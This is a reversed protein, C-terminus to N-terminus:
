SRHVPWVMGARVLQEVPVRLGAWVDEVPADTLVAIAAVIQGVTLEGDCAGLFGAGESSLRLRQGFGGGQTAIVLQPDAQGPLYHREERVDAARVLIDAPSVEGGSALYDVVRQLYEGAASSSTDVADFCRAPHFRGRHESAPPAALVVMGMGISAVARTCFDELWALETAASTEGQGASSDQLWLRVYEAPSLQRRQVVWAAVDRGALWQQPHNAWTPIDAPQLAAPASEVEWNGMVVAHGGAALHDCVQGVVTATLADGEMNGDRYELVGGARVAPATIVFPPNSVILDFTEGAVPACLDGQRVEVPVRNLAANFRAFACARASIDTAVVRKAHTALYLALVGCGTGLDLASVVPAPPTALALTRTAGGVGLVHHPGPRVGALAGLDSAVWWHHEVGAITAAHPALHCLPQLCEGVLHALGLAMLGGVQTRPLASALRAVPLSQGLLFFEILASLSTKESRECCHLLPVRRDQQWAVAGDEGLFDVVADFTFGADAFDVRLAALWTDDVVPVSM